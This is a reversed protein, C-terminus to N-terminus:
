RQVFDEAMKDNRVIRSIITEYKAENDGQCECALMRASCVQVSKENQGFKCKEVNEEDVDEAGKRM